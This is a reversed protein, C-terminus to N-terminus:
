TRGIADLGNHPISPFGQAAEIRNRTTDLRLSNLFSQCRQAYADEDTDFYRAYVGGKHHRDAVALNLYRSIAIDTFLVEGDFDLHSPALIIDVGANKHVEVAEPYLLDEGSLLGVRGVQPVDVYYELRDGPKMGKHADDDSLHVKIYRLLPAREDPALLAVVCQNDEILGLAVYCKLEKGFRLYKEAGAGDSELEPFVTIVPADKKMLAAERSATIFHRLHDLTEDQEFAEGSVTVVLVEREEGPPVKRDYYHTMDVFAGGYLHPKRHRRRSRMQGAAEVKTLDFEATLTYDECNEYSARTEGLSDVIASQPRISWRSGNYQGKEEKKKEYCNALVFPVGNEIARVRLTSETKSEISTPIAILNSGNLVLSRAILPISYDGCIMVGVKGFPLEVPHLDSDGKMVFADSTLRRKRYTRLVGGAGIVTASSYFNHHRPSYEFSSLVVYTDHGDRLCVDAQIRATLENTWREHFMRMVDRHTAIDDAKSSYPTVPASDSADPLIPFEYLPLIPLEPNVILNAGDEAAAINLAVLREMNEQLTQELKEKGHSAKGFHIAAVKM